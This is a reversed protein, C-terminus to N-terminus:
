MMNLSYVLQWEATFTGTPTLTISNIGTELTPFPWDSDIETGNKKVELNQWDIHLIDGATLDEAIILGIWNIKVELNTITWSTVAIIYYPEVEKTELTISETINWNFSWFNLSAQNTKRWFADQSLFTVNFPIYINKKTWFTITDITAYLWRTEWKVKWKLKKNPFSLNLKFEDTLDDLDEKNDATLVGQINITRWSFFSSNYIQWDNQPSDILEVRRNPYDRLWFGEGETIIRNNQLWYDNFSITDLALDGITVTQNLVQSNLTFDNM